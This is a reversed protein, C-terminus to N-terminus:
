DRQDNESYPSLVAAALGGNAKWENDLFLLGRKHEFEKAM